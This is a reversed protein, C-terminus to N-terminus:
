QVEGEMHQELALIDEQEYALLRQVRDTLQDSGVPMARLSALREAYEIARARSARLRDALTKPAQYEADKRLHEAVDPHLRRPTLYM